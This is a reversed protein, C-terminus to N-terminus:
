NRTQDTSLMHDSSKEGEHCAFEWLEGAPRRKEASRMTWPRTFVTPDEITVEYTMTNADSFMFRETLHAHESLFDGVVSMRPKGNLNTTDVVLTNGEWHGRGDGMWLKVAPGPHPRGDLPIVRYAHYDDWIFVVSAPAQIIQVTTPLMFLRPVSSLLCRSQTDIHEPRTPREWASEQQKQLAAAWPQYPVRGDPPDVIRSPNTVIRGTIRQQFEGGGTIPNTLSFTGGLVAGWFGQVDPQGDSLRVPQWPAAAAAQARPPQQQEQAFLPAGLLLLAIGIRPCWSTM